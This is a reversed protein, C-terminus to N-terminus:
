QQRYEGRKWADWDWSGLFKKGSAMGTSYLTAKDADKLTFDTARFPSTDVFVTRSSSQPDSVYARDHAGIMTSLLSKALQVNTNDPKWDAERINQQGSLKVGLTPWRSAKGDNRDFLQLPFNSLMGGDTCIIHDHRVADSNASMRWPRFFFPISASARIADAVPQQDPDVGLLSAYDWPLRLMLGRSVDSVVVVLRYQRPPPLASNPDNDKLDAWTEVGSAALTERIWDYLFSGTYMGQHLLLAAIPGIRPIRGLMGSRDEFKAFDLKDMVTKIDAVGMRAALLSAVIAGASTGAVRHFTYPDTHEALATVAGVLASGKVGGGELVLDADAM